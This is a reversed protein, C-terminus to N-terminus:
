CEIFVVVQLSFIMQLGVYVTIIEPNMIFNPNELAIEEDNLSENDVTEDKKVDDSYSTDPQTDETSRYSNVNLLSWSNDFSFWRFRSM